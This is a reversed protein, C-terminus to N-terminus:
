ISREYVTRDQMQGATQIESKLAQLKQVTSDTKHRECAWSQRNRRSNLSKENNRYNVREYNVMAKEGSFSSIIVNVDDNEM